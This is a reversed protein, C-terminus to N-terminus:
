YLNGKRTGGTYDYYVTKLETYFEIASRGMERPGVGTAKAGGFPLHPEGGVTPSNVHTVGAEIEEVFTMIQAPDRSYVSSALGYRVGNAVRLAEGLGDVRLVALVPGFVEEQALLDGEPVRDFITPATFYGKAHAPDDLAKGGTVLTAMAKAQELAALVKKWRARWSRGSPPPTATTPM